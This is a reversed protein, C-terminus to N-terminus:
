TFFNQRRIQGEKM